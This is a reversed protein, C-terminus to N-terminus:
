TELYDLDDKVPGRSVASLIRDIMANVTRAQLHRGPQEFERTLRSWGLSSPKVEHCRVLISWARVARVRDGRELCVHMVDLLRRIHEARISPQALSLPTFFGKGLEYVSNVKGAASLHIRSPGPEPVAYAPQDATRRPM